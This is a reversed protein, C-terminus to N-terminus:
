ASYTYFVLFTAASVGATLAIAGSWITITSTGPNNDLYIYSLAAAGGPATTNMLRYGTLWFTPHAAIALTTDYPTANTTSSMSLGSISISATGLLV